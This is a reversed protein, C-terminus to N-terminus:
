IYVLNNYCRALFGDGRLVRCQLVRVGVRFPKANQVRAIETERASRSPFPRSPSRSSRSSLGPVTLSLILLKTAAAHLTKDNRSSNEINFVVDDGFDRAPFFICFLVFLLPLYYFFFIISSFVRQFIKTIITTTGTNTIARYATFFMKFRLIRRRRLSYCKETTNNNNNRTGVRRGCYFLKLKLNKINGVAAIRDPLINM